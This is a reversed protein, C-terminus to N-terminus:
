DGEVMDFMTPSEPDIMRELAHAIGVTGLSGITWLALRFRRGRRQRAVKERAHTEAAALISDIEAESLNPLEEKLKQRGAIRALTVALESPM